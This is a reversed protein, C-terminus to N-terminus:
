YDNSYRTTIPIGNIGIFLLQAGVFSGWGFSSAKQLEQTDLDGAGLPFFQGGDV